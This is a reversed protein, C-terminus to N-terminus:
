HELWLRCGKTDEPTLLSGPSPEQATVRGHGDLHPIMRRLTVQAVAQRLSLGVLSPMQDLSAASRDRRPASGDTRRRVPRDGRGVTRAPRRLTVWRATQGPAPPRRGVVLRGPLHSEKLRDPPAGLLPLVRSAFRSFAPAALEGGYHARGGPEDIVFIAALRPEYAPAYGVYSAVYKGTGYGPVGPISKQATGTKGAVAYGQVAARRGTGHLVVQQLMETLQRATERSIVRRPEPAKFRRILRDQPDRLERTLWPRILVGGNAVAAVATVMQMPTVLIEQGISLEPQSLLSWKSPPRILGAQEGPLGVGTRSGFGFKRITDYFEKPSLRMGAHIAGVNSSHAMIQTFSLSDYSKHDRIITHGIRYRGHGCDIIEGPKVLGRDLVAAPSIVKFTSGPEYAAVVVRDRRDEKRAKSFTNPNFTPWSALALVEGTRPDLAIASGAKARAKRVARDLEQELVHQVTLDLTLQLNNGAAAKRIVRHDFTRGRADVLDAIRGPRGRIWQDFALEIGGLPRNEINVFGLTQAALSRNPYIRRSWPELVIGKLHVARVRRCTLSSAIRQLYVYKKPSRLLKELEAAPRGLLPSLIRATGVKDKIQAPHAAVMEADISLALQHGHRDLLEGRRPPLGHLNQRHQAALGRLERCRVLQLDILEATIVGGFGLTGLALLAIRRRRNGDTRM